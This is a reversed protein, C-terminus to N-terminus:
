HHWWSAKFTLQAWLFLESFPIHLATPSVATVVQNFNSDAM